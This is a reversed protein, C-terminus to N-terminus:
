RAIAAGECVDLENFDVREIGKVTLPEFVDDQAVFGECELTSHVPVHFTLEHEFPRRSEFFLRETRGGPVWGHADFLRERPATRLEMSGRLM